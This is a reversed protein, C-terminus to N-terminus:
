KEKFSVVVAQKRIQLKVYLTMDVGNHHYHYVDQWLLPNKDSQMSKYFDSERLDLVVAYIDEHTFDIYDADIIAQNSIFRKGDRILQQIEELSYKPYENTDSM